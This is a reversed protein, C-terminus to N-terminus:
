ITSCDYYHSSIREYMHFLKNLWESWSGGCSIETRLPLPPPPLSSLNIAYFFLEASYKDETKFAFMNKFYSILAQDWKASLSARRGPPCVQPKAAERRWLHCKQWMGACTPIDHVRVSTNISKWSKKTSDENLATLEVIERPMKKQLTVPSM